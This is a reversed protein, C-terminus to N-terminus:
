QAATATATTAAAAAAVVAETGAQEVGKRLVWRAVAGAEDEASWERALTAFVLFSTHTKIEPETRHVLRGELFVKKADAVRKLRALRAQKKEFVDNHVPDKVEAYDAEDARFVRARGDVERLRELAEGVNKASVNVGRLGELDLGVRERRVDVRRQSIAFMSVDVWGLTRLATIARQTQEICPLFCTLHVAHLPSLPSPAGSPPHRSLHPLALWPAPLDLFVATARPSTSPPSTPSDAPTVLFGDAYVDRHTVRVVDALGHAAIEADLQAARPAHYEYSYVRGHTQTTSPNADSPYGNFVARASAHTFSGSGAGAEIVVSGPRVRLKQLVFSYDPTYVIQTRHPLSITWSEPTPPLIHCFGSAAAVASKQQRTTEASTPTTTAAQSSAGDDEGDGLRAKKSSSDETADEVAKRKQGKGQQGKRGRTGTDVKSALVQSGWPLGILTSHPYSGFRTNAVAGEAYGTERVVRDQLITPLLQDRRLHLVALSAATSAPGPQLFPSPGATATM